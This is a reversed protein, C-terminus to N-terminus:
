EIKGHKGAGSQGMKAGREPVEAPAPTEPLSLPAIKAAAVRQGSPLAHAYYTMTTQPSAHGLQAAVAAPDAGEALMQSATLHRLAYLPFKKIGAEKRARRMAHVYAWAGSTGRDTRCVLVSPDSGDQRFRARAEELWWVPPVVTKNRGVKGQWVEVTGHAWDVGSWRLGFLEVAGPRLCLAAATRCAWQMWAPLVSYLRQFDDASGSHRGHEEPLAAYREWPDAALLDESAAYRFCARLRRVWKNISVNGAGGARACDRVMELDRRTLTDAYKNAICEAYGVPRRTQKTPNEVGAVMWIYADQTKKCMKNNKIYLMVAEYVTLRNNEPADQQQEDQFELAEEKTRFYFQKWKGPRLTDKVKVVWRGDARQCLSM